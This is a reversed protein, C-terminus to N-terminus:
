DGLFYKSTIHEAKPAPLSAIARQDTTVYKHADRHSQVLVMGAVSKNIL